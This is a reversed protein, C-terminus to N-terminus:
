LGSLAVGAGCVVTDAVASLWGGDLVADPFLPDDGCAVVDDVSM